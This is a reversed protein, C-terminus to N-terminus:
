QPTEQLMRETWRDNPFEQLLRHRAAKSEPELGAARALQWQTYLSEPLWYGHYGTNLQRYRQLAAERQGAQESAKASWFLAEEKKAESKRAAYAQDFETAAQAYRNNRMLEWAQTYRREPNHQHVWIGLGLLVSPWVLALWGRPWPQQSECARRVSAPRMDRWALVGLALLALVSALMGAIGVASHGYELIVDSEEPIVLMFGPGALHLSGKSLLQWRPHWAM